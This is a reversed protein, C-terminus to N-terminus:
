AGFGTQHGLDARVRLLLKSREGSKRTANLPPISATIYFLVLIELSLRFWSWSSSVQNLGLNVM